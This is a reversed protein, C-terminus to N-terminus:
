DGEVFSSVEKNTDLLHKMQTLAEDVWQAFLDFPVVDVLSPFKEIFKDYVWRLKLAGTKKGFEKEALVVWLLLCAKIKAIQQESPLQAFKRAYVAVVAVASLLVVLLSWNEILWKM